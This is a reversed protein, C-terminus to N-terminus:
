ASTIYIAGDDGYYLSRKHFTRCARTLAEGQEDEWGGDWFGAGHGNRTLWFDIGASRERGAFLSGYREQFAACDRRIEELAEASLDEVTASDFDLYFAAEVYGYTFADLTRALPTMELVYQQGM